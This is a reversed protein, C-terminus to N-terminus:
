KPSHGHKILEIACSQASIFDDRAGEPTAIFNNWSGEPAAIFNNRSGEPPAIFNNRTGEPAAIFNNRAGEPTAIFNNRAGEASLWPEVCLAETFGQTEKQFKLALPCFSAWILIQHYKRFTQERKLPM